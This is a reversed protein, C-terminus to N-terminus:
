QLLPCVNKHPKKSLVLYFGKAFVKLNKLLNPM